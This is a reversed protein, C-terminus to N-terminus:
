SENRLYVERWYGDNVLERIVEQVLDSVIRAADSVPLAGSTCLMLTRPMSIEEIRYASVSGQAYERSFAGWPLITTGYGEKVAELMTRLSGLEVRPRSEIGISHFLQDVLDRLGNGREPLLLAMEALERRSMTGIGTNCRHEDACKVLFLEETLLPRTRFGYTPQGSFLIAIDIVGSNLDQHINRSLGETIRLEIKPYRTLCADMFPVSLTASTSTPFGIAVSGTPEDDFSIMASRTHEVLRLIHQAQQYFLEGARTASIGQNSRILLSRGLESELAAIQQSLASQVVNRQLAAKSFSGAEVVAIFYRLQRLDM